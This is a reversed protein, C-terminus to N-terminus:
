TFHRTESEWRWTLNHWWEGIHERQEGGLKGAADTGKHEIDRLSKSREGITTHRDRGRGHFWRDLIYGQRVSASFNCIMLKTDSPECYKIINRNKGSQSSAHARTDFANADWEVCSELQEKDSTNKGVVIFLCHFLGLKNKM